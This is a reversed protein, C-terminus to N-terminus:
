NWPGNPYKREVIKVITLLTVGCCVGILQGWPIPFIIDSGGFLIMGTFLFAMLGSLLWAKFKNMKLRRKDQCQFKMYSNKTQTFLTDRANIAGSGSVRDLISIEIFKIV